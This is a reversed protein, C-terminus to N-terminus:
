PRPRAPMVANMANITSQVEHADVPAVETKPSLMYMWSNMRRGADAPSGRGSVGHGGIM